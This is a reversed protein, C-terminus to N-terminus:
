FEDFPNPLIRRAVFVGLIPVDPFRQRLRRECCKFHKGSTLVDDFLVVEGRLPSKALSVEDVVVNEFLEDPTSREGTEHDAITSHTQRLLLRVDADFEHFASSLTQVLRDDYDAHSTVKSTPIPVWTVREANVRSFVKRLGAAITATAQNKWYGRRPNAAIVSPKTKFNFILQNTGGGEYGKGSFYEGFFLCRDGERLFMHDDRNTADIWTLRDPLM